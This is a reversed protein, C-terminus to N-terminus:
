EGWGELRELADLIVADHLSECVDPVLAAGLLGADSIILTALDLPITEFYPNRVEIGTPPADWIEAPSGERLTLRAAVTRGVFKDRTAAVYVPIGQLQAAAAVMRTGTKNIFWEPGIADAGVLVADAAAIAEGIAADSFCTVPVADLALRSALHRGELAPRSESCSVRVDRATRAADVVTLVARSMSVTVLHLSADRPELSVCQMAFRRLADPARAVQRVFRGFRDPDRDSALAALVANWVPAMSPQASTLLRALPTLEIGRDRATTLIAIVEDLIASAGAERNSAVASVRRALEGSQDNVVV